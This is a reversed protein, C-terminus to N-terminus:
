SNVTLDFIFATYIHNIHHFHIYHFYFSPFIRDSGENKSLKLKEIEESIKKLDTETVSNEAVVDIKNLQHGEAFSIGQSLLRSTLNRDSASHSMGRQEITQLVHHNEGGTDILLPVSSSPTSEKNENADDEKTTITTAKTATTTTVTTTTTAVAAAAAATAQPHSALSSSTTKVEVDKSTDDKATTPSSSTTKVEVDKRTDDKATTPSSSTTKVEVDKSTDDKATTPLTSLPISHQVQIPSAAPSAAAALTGVDPPTPLPQEEDM